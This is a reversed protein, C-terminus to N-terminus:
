DPFERFYHARGTRPDAKISGTARVAEEIVAFIAELVYNAKQVKNEVILKALEM